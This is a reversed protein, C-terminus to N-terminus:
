VTKLQISAGKGDLGDWKEYKIIFQPNYKLHMWESNHKKELFNVANPSLYWSFYGAMNEGFDTDTQLKGQELTEFIRGLQIYGTSKKALTTM